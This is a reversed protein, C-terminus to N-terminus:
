RGPRSDRADERKAVAQSRKKVGYGAGAILAILVSAPVAVVLYPGTDV